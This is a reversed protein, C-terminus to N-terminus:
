ITQTENPWCDNQNVALSFYNSFLIKIIYYYYMFLVTNPDKVTTFM